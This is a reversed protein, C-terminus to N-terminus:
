QKKHPKKDKEKLNELIKNFNEKLFDEIDVSNLCDKHFHLNIRVPRDIAVIRKNEIIEQNCVPCIM